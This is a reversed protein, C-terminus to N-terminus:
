PRGAWSSRREGGVWFGLLFLLTDRAARGHLGGGVVLGFDWCALSRIMPPGGM